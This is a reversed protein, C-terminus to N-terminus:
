ILRRAAGGARGVGTLAHPSFHNDGPRMPSLGDMLVLNPLLPTLAQMMEPLTFSEGTVGVPNWQRTDCPQNHFILVRKPAASAASAKRPKLLNYFPSLVLAAGATKTFHRRSLKV